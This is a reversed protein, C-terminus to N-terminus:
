FWGLRAALIWAALVVLTVAIGHAAGYQLQDLRDGGLRRARLWGLAAGAAFAITLLM